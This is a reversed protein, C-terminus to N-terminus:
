KGFGSGGGRFFGSDRQYHSGWFFLTGGFHNYGNDFEFLEVQSGSVDESVVVLWESGFRLYHGPESDPDSETVERNEDAGAGQEIDEATEAAPDDSHFVVAESEPDDGSVHEYHDELWDRPDNSFASGMASVLLFGVVIIALVILCGKGSGGPGGSGRPGGSGDQAHPDTM